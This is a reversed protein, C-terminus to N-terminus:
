LSARELQIDYIIMYSNTFLPKIGIKQEWMTIKQRDHLTLAEPKWINFAVSHQESPVDIWRFYRGSAVFLIHTPKQIMVSDMLPLFISTLEDNSTANIIRSAINRTTTNAYAGGQSNIGSTAELIYQTAPDSIVLTQDAVSITQRLSASAKREESSIESAIANHLITTKWQQINNIFISVFLGGVAIISFLKMWRLSMKTIIWTFPLALATNIFYRGVVAFKLAYPFPSLITALGIISLIGLIRQEKKQANLAMGIGLPLLIIAGGYWQHMFEIKKIFTQTFAAAEGYNISELAFMSNVILTTTPIIIGLVIAFLLTQNKSMNQSLWIVFLLGLLYSGIIFHTLISGIICLPIFIWKIQRNWQSFLLSVACVSLVGSVTQPLLFLNSYAIQSEFITAGIIGSIFGTLKNKTLVFAITYSVFVTIILHMGEAIWWWGLPEIPTIKQLLAISTHFLTTYGDFRFTDTLRSPLIAFKGNIIQNIVTQHEFIDWNLISPYPSDIRWTWYIFLSFIFLIFLLTNNKM